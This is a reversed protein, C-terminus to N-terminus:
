ARGWTHHDVQLAALGSRRFVELAVGAERVPGGSDELLPLSLLAPLGTVRGVADVLARLGEDNKEPLVMPLVRGDASLAGPARAALSPSAPLAVGGTRGAPLGLGNLLDPDALLLRPEVTMPMQLMRRTRALAEPDDARLLVARGGLSCPGPAAAGVWRVIAEGDILPGLPSPLTPWGEGLRESIAAEDHRTGQGLRLPIARPAPQAFALAAGLAASADESGPLTWWSVDPHAEVLAGVVRPDDIMRGAVAVRGGRAGGLHHSVVGLLARRLVDLVTAAGDAPTLDRLLSPLPDVLTPTVRGVLQGGEHSLWGGLTEVAAPDPRGQAARAGLAAPDWDPLRLVARLRSLLAHLSEPGVQHWIRDLLGARGAHLSALEGDGYPAVVLIRVDDADQTRYAAEALCRHVDVLRLRAAAFGAERLEAERAEAEVDARFAGLGTRRLLGQLAAEGERLPSMPDESLRRLWPPRVRSSASRYSGAVAIVDVEDRALGAEKLAMRVALPVVGEEVRPVREGPVWAAIRDDVIVAASPETGESVGLIRM